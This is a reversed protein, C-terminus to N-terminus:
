KDGVSRGLSPGWLWTQNQGEAVPRVPSTSVGEKGPAQQSARLGPSWGNGLLQCRCNGPQLPASRSELRILIFCDIGDQSPRGSRLLDVAMLPSVVIGSM